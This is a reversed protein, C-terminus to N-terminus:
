ARVRALLGGPGPSRLLHATVPQGGRLLTRHEETPGRPAAQALDRAAREGGSFVLGAPQGDLSAAGFVAQVAGRAAAIRPEPGADWALACADHAAGIFAALDDCAQALTRPGRAMAAVCLCPNGPPPLLAFRPPGTPSLRPWM